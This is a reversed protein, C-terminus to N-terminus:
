SPFIRDPKLAGSSAMHGLGVFAGGDAYIRVSADPYVPELQISRGHRLAGADAESVTVAPRDCLASDIGLLRSDLARTGESAAQELEDITVMQSASYPGVALRRLATVHAVTGLREALDTVLTRVYTGKSCHVSLTLSPSSLEELKLDFVEVQRPSREVQEGSRALEYLRRGRYKLASYMPPVQSIKGVMERV